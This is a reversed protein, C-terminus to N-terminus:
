KKNNKRKIVRRRTRRVRSKNRFNRSKNRKVRRTKHPKGGGEPVPVAAAAAAQPQGYLDPCHQKIHRITDSIPGYKRKDLKVPKSAEPPDYGVSKHLNRSYRQGTASDREDATVLADTIRKEMKRIGYQRRLYHPDRMLTQRKTGKSEGLYNENAAKLRELANSTRQLTKVSRLHELDLANSGTDSVVFTGVDIGLYFIANYFAKFASENFGSGSTIVTISMDHLYRCLCVGFRKLDHTNDIGNQKAFGPNDLLLKVQVSVNFFSNGTQQFSPDDILHKLIAPISMFVSIQSTDTYHDSPPSTILGHLKAYKGNRCHEFIFSDISQIGNFFQSRVDALNARQHSERRTPAHANLISPAMMQEALERPNTRIIWATKEQGGPVQCTLDITHLIVPVQSSPPKFITNAFDTIDFTTVTSLDQGGSTQAIPLKNSILNWINFVLHPFGMREEIRWQIMTGKSIGNVQIVICLKNWFTSVYKIDPKVQDDFAFVGSETAMIGHYTGTRLDQYGSKDDATWNYCTIRPNTQLLSHIYNIFGTTDVWVCRVFGVIKHEYKKEKTTKKSLMLVTTDPTVTSAHENVDLTYLKSLQVTRPLVITINLKNLIDRFLNLRDRRDSSFVSMIEMMIEDSMPIPIPIPEGQKLSRPLTMVRNILFNLDFAETTSTRLDTPIVPHGAQVAKLGQPGTHQTDSRELRHMLRCTAAFFWEDVTLEDFPSQPSKGTTLVDLIPAFDTDTETFQKITRIVIQNVSDDSWNVVGPRAFYISLNKVGVDKESRQEIDLEGHPTVLTGLVNVNRPNLINHLFTCVSLDNKAFTM